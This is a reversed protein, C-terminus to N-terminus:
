QLAAGQIRLLQPMMPPVVVRKTGKDQMEAHAAQQPPRGSAASSGLPPPPPFRPEPSFPPAAQSVTARPPQLPPPGTAMTVQSLFTQPRSATQSGSGSLDDTNSSDGGNNLVQVKFLSNHSPPSSVSPIFFLFLFIYFTLPPSNITSCAQLSTSPWANQGIADLSGHFITSCRKM